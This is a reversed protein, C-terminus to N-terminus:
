TELCMQAIDQLNIGRSGVEGQVGIEHNWIGEAITLPRVSSAFLLVDFFEWDERISSSRGETRDM